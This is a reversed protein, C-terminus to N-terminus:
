HHWQKANKAFQARKRLKVSESALGEDICTDTVKEYGKNKCYETFKGKNSKKIEIKPKKTDEKM